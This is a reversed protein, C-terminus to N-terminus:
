RRESVTVQVATGAGPQSDLSFTAGILRARERMGQLGFHGDAEGAQPDFGQGDDRVTLSLGDRRQELHLWVRKAGAHQAVNALAEEAIRYLGQEVEPQLEIQEPLVMDLELRGREAASEALQRLALPLGLGELPSARLERIARRAEVLGQRTTELSRDLMSRAEAPNAEWVARLGELQVALASLSHALTDHLERALRNRERSIALEELTLAYRSLDRNAAALAQRQERQSTAMRNVLYGIMFFLVIRGFSIAAMLFAPRGNFTSTGLIIAMEFGTTLGSFAVVGPFGYQWATLILPACLLFLLRGARRVATSGDPDIPEDLGVATVSMLILAVSIAALAIPLYARGMRRELGPFSLYILLLASGALDYPTLAQRGPLELADIASALELALGSQRLVAALLLLAMRLGILFRVAALLGPEVAHRKM